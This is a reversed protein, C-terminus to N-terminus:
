APAGDASLYVEYTAVEVFDQMAVTISEKGDHETLHTLVGEDNKYWYLTGLKAAETSSLVAGGKKVIATLTTNIKANRFVYGNSSYLDIDLSDDGAAGTSGTYAIAWSFVKYMVIDETASEDDVTITLEVNGGEKLASTAAITLIVSDGDATETITLGSPLSDPWTVIFPVQTVGRYVTLRTQTSGPIASDTDGDFTHSEKTMHVSYNDTLDTLTIQDLARVKTYDIAM